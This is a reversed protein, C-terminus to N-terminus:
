WDGSLYHMYSAYGIGNFGCGKQCAGSLRPWRKRVEYSDLGRAANEDFSLGHDCASVRLETANMGYEFEVGDDGRIKM